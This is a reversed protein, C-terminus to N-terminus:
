KLSSPIECSELFLSGMQMGKLLRYTKEKEEEICTTFSRPMSSHQQSSERSVCHGIEDKPADTLMLFSFVM